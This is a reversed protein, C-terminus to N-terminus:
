QNIKKKLWEITMGCFPTPKELLLNLYKSCAQKFQTQNTHLKKLVENFAAKRNQPLSREQCNLNLTVNLEENLAPNDSFVIGNAKYQIQSIISINCPNALITKNGKAADCTLAKKSGCGRNGSCVALMNDYRLDESESIDEILPNQPYFHEITMGPQNNKKAAEEPIRCTCYACLGHQESHLSELLAKKTDTPMTAYKAGPQCKFWRLEKPEESKKIHIM